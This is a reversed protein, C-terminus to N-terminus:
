NSNGELEAVKVVVKGTTHGGVLDKQAQQVGEATFPYEKHVNIKFTGDTILEFLANAYHKREEITGYAYGMMRDM